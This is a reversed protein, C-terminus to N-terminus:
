PLWQPMVANAVVLTSQGTQLDYLWVEPPQTLDVQNTRTYALLTANPHWAFDLHNYNAAHTVQFAGTGDPHMLWLQRGPTWHEPDLAKRGFALWQGDPSFSPTADELNPDKTLDAPQFHTGLRYRWLHAALYPAQSPAQTAAPTGELLLAVAILSHGDPSWAASEGTDNAFFAVEQGDQPQVVVYGRRTADYYALLGESSWLPSYTVHTAPIIPNESQDNLALLHVRTAGHPGDSREYALWHGEPSPRPNLCQDNQCALLRQAEPVAEGQISLRDVVFIDAGLGNSASFYVFRGDASVAYGRVGGTATLRQTADTTLDRAYVDPNDAPWLYALMVEAVTFQWKEGQLLPLGNAGKLGALVEVTVQQGPDWPQTPTFVAQKGEVQWHGPVDPTFRVHTALSELRVPRSFTLRVPVAGSPVDDQQPFVAVLRPAAWWGALLAVLVGVGILGALRRLM